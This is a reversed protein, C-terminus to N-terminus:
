KQGFKKIYLTSLNKIENYEVEKEKNIKMVDKLEIKFKKIKKTSNNIDYEM